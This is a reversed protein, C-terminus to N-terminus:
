ENQNPSSHKRMGRDLQFPASFAPLFQSVYQSSAWHDTTAPGKSTPRRRLLERDTKGKLHRAITENTGRGAPHSDRWSNVQDIFANLDEPHTFIHERALAQAAYTPGMEENARKRYLSLSQRSTDNKKLADALVDAAIKGTTMAQPLGAGFLPEIMSAADGVVVAGHTYNDRALPYTPLVAAKLPGVQTAKGLRFNGIETNDRFWSIYDTIKRRNRKLTAETLFVGVNAMTETVPFFWFYGAPFLSASPYIFDLTNGIGRVNEFYGRIGFCRHEPHPHRTRFGPQLALRSLAGDAVVVADSSISVSEKRHHGHLGTVKGQDLTLEAVTFEEIFRAGQEVASRRIIDDLVARPYLINGRDPSTFSHFAGNPAFIATGQLIRARSRVEEYIGM